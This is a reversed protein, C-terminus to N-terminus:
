RVLSFDTFIWQEGVKEYPFEYTVSGTVAGNQEPDVVEVTVRVTLRNPNDGRMVQTYEAGRYIDTGRGGDQVYLVGDIDLYQVGDYPLLSDVLADSFLGKLYGRLSSLSEIGPYDVRYYVVGDVERSDNPDFPIPAVQFWSFAEQAARYAELVEEDTPSVAPAATPSPSPAPTPSTQTEDETEKPSPEASPVPSANPTASVQPPTSTPAASVQVSPSDEPRVPEKAETEGCSSTCGALLLLLALMPIWKKM